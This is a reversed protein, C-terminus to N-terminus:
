VTTPPTAALELAAVRKSLTKIAEILVPVLEAYAVCKLGDASTRVVEPVIEEIEQALVGVKRGRPEADATMKYYVGRMREVMDLGSELTVVDTKLNSDSSQLVMSTAFIDGVVHLSYAPQDTNIGMAQNSWSYSLYTSTLAQTGQGMLLRGNPWANSGTGGMSVTLPWMGAFNSLGIQVDGNSLSMVGNISYAPRRATFKADAANWMLVDMNCWTAASSVDNLQTVNSPMWIDGVQNYPARGNVSQVVVKPEFLQNAANYLLAKGTTLGYPQVDALSVLAVNSTNATVNSNALDLWLDGVYPTTPLENSGVFYRLQGGFTYWKTGDSVKWLPANCTTDVWYTTASPSPALNSFTPPVATSGGLTYWQTGDSVKWIPNTNSTTDVWYTSASPSPALNSFTPPVSTAAATGGFAYWNTGDSVKWIPNANSTTDVWYTNSAPAPALTGFVPPSTQTKDLENLLRVTQGNVTVYANQSFTAYQAIVNSFAGTGVRADLTYQPLGVTGIGIGSPTVVFASLAGFNGGTNNMYMVPTTGSRTIGLWVADGVGTAANTNVQIKTKFSARTEYVHILETNATTAGYFSVNNSPIWAPKSSM